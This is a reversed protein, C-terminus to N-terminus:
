PLAMFGIVVVPTTQQFPTPHFFQEPIHLPFVLEDEVSDTFANVPDICLASGGENVRCCFAHHAPSTVLQHAANDM